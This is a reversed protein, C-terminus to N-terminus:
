EWYIDTKRQIEQTPIASGRHHDLSNSKPDLKKPRSKISRLVWKELSSQEIDGEYPIPVGRLTLVFHPLGKTEYFKWADINGDLDVKVFQVDPHKLQVKTQITTFNPEFRVCADCWNEVLQMVVLEHTNILTDVETFSLAGSVKTSHCGFVCLLTFVVVFIQRSLNRRMVQM